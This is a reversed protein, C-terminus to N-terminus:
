WQCVASCDGLKLLYTSQWDFLHATNHSNLTDVSKTHLSIFIGNAKHYHKRMIRLTQKTVHVCNIHVSLIYTSTNHYFIIAGQQFGRQICWVHVTWQMANLTYALHLRIRYLPTANTTYVSMLGMDFNECHCCMSQQSSTIITPQEDDDGRGVLTM